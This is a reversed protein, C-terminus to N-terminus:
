NKDKYLTTRKAIDNRIKESMIRAGNINLHNWDYFLSDSHICDRYDILEIKEDKAVDKLKRVANTIVPNNQMNEDLDDPMIVLLTKISDKKFAELLLKLYDLQKEDNLKLIFSRDHKTLGHTKIHNIPTFGNYTIDIEGYKSVERNFLYYRNFFALHKKKTNFFLYLYDKLPFYRSDQEIKRPMTPNLMIWTVDMLIFKPKPYYHRFLNTYLYYLFEPNSSDFAFNYVSLSDTELIKPNIGRASKSTGFIVFKAKVKPHFLEDYKWQFRDKEPTYLKCIFNL